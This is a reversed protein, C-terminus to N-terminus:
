QSYPTEDEDDGTGRAAERAKAVARKIARLERETLAQGRNQSRYALRLCGRCGIAAGPTIHLTNVAAGCSPCQLRHAQLGLNTEWPSLRIDAGGIAVGGLRGLMAVQLSFGDPAPSVGVMGRPEGSAGRLHITGGAHAVGGEADAVGGEADAAQMIMARTLPHCDEVTLRPRHGVWRSSGPAGM